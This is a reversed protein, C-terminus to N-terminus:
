KVRRIELSDTSPLITEQKVSEKGEEYSIRLNGLSFNGVVNAFLWVLLSLAVAGGISQLCGSFFKAWRSEKQPILPVVKEDLHQTLKDTVENIVQKSMDDFSGGMFEQLITEAMGRYHELSTKNDRGATFHNIEKDPVVDVKHKEKYENIHQVKESKYLSYAIHGVM